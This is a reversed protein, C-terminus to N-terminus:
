EQTLTEHYPLDMGALLTNPLLLRALRDVRCPFISLTSCELAQILRIYLQLLTESIAIPLIPSKKLINSSEKPLLPGKM